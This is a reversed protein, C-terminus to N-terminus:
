IPTPMPLVVRGNITINPATIQLTGICKIVLHANGLEIVNGHADQIRIHGKDGGSVAPDTIEIEHGNLSRIVRVKNDTRPPKDAGNWLFGVVYPHQVDGNLFAVLVEDGLEPMLWTGRDNGAMTRAVPAWYAENGGPLDHLTVQVRGEGAPDLVNIVQGTVVGIVKNM